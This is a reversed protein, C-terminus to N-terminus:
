LQWALLMCAILILLDQFCTSYAIATAIVDTFEVVDLVSRM